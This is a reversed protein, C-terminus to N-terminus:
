CADLGWFWLPLPLHSELDLHEYPYPGFLYRSIESPAIFKSQSSDIQITYGKSSHGVRVNSGPLATELIKRPNNVKAMCLFELHERNYPIQLDEFTKPHGLLLAGPNRQHIWELLEFLKKSEGGWEHVYGNLDIGKGFAAYAKIQFDEEIWFWQVNEHAAIWKEDHPAIALGDRRDLFFRMLSPDWGYQVNARSEIGDLLNNEQAYESVTLLPTTVQYGCLEFGLKRYLSHDSGWLFEVSIQRKSSEQLLERVLQTAVGQNRRDPHTSIAGIISIPLANDGLQLTGFRVGGTAVLKKERDFAGLRFVEAGSEPAWVPFDSHFCFSGEQPFAEDVLQSFEHSTDQDIPKFDIQSGDRLEM